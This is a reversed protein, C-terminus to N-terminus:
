LLKYIYQVIMKGLERITDCFENWKEFQRVNEIEDKEDLRKLLDKYFNVDALIKLAKENERQNRKCIEKMVDVTCFAM